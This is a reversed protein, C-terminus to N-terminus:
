RAKLLEIETQLRQVERLLMMPIRDYYVTHLKDDSDYACIDPCIKEVDDAILGFQQHKGHNGIYDFRVPELMSIIAANETASIEKINEKASRLSIVTGLQNASDILVPIADAVGTTIGRIGTQFNKVHTGATGIRIIGVNGATGANGILINSNDNVTLSAGAGKGIAINSSGTTIIQLSNHGVCVNDIGTTIATGAANGLATNNSGTSVNTAADTGMATNGIGTTLSNGLVSYGVATNQQGTTCNNLAFKGLATNFSGTTNLELAYAGVATNFDGTTNVRMASLGIAVLEGGTTISGLSDSGMAVNFSGTTVAGMSGSGVAVNHIGATSAGLANIGIAVNDSGSINADLADKGVATNDSGITNLLLANTGVATNSSATTNGQLALSGIATNNSGTNNVKLTGTGLAANNAGTTNLQLSLVGIAVTNSGTTIAEGASQGIGINNSGTTVATLANGGIAMNGNGTTAATLADTGIAVNASGTTISNAANQGIDINTNAQMFRTVKSNVFNVTTANFQTVPANLEISTANTNGVLLPVPLDTDVGATLLLPHYIDFHTSTAAFVDSGNVAFSFARTGTDYYVFDDNPSTGAFHWMIEQPNVTANDFFTDASGLFLKKGASIHTDGSIFVSEAVNDLIIGANGTDAIIWLQPHAATFGDGKFVMGYINGPLASEAITFGCANTSDATTINVGVGGTTQTINLGTPPNIINVDAHFTKAGGFDQATATVIGPHTADAIETQFIAGTIKAANADVAVIPAGISLGSAGGFLDPGVTFPSVSEIKNFTSTDSGEILIHDGVFIMDQVVGQGLYPPLLLIINAVTLSLDKYTHTVTVLSTGQANSSTSGRNIQLNQASFM